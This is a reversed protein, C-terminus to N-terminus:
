FSLVASKLGHPNGHEVHPVALKLYKADSGEYDM